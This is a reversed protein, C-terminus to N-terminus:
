QFSDGHERLHRKWRQIKEKEEAELRKAKKREYVARVTRKTQEKGADFNARALAVVKDIEEPSYIFNWTSLYPSTDPDVGQVKPNRLFPFYVVTIGADPDLLKWDADPEVRTSQPPEENSKRDLTNGVWVLVLKQTLMEEQYM